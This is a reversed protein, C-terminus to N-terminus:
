SLFSLKKKEYSIKELSKQDIRNSFSDFKSYKM